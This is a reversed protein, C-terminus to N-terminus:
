MVLPTRFVCFTWLASVCGSMTNSAPVVGNSPVVPMGKLLVRESVVPHAFLERILMEKVVVASCSPGPTM